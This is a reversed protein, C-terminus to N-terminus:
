ANPSYDALWDAGRPADDWGDTDITVELFTAKGEPFLEVSDAAAPVLCCEGAHLPVITEMSKVAALGQVCFYVVFCDVAELNKRMPTDLPMINTTFHECRAVTTTENARADYRTNAHGSVGGFDIAEMAEATHLQRKRGDADVRDYDYIRYTCDSTQQIEAVMLGAGLAHVRGAPIFFVDGPAPQESHLLDMLHGAGLAATYEEPTTDRRFGSILRAGQSAQMVYWMETKGWPM